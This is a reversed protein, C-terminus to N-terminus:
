GLRIVGIALGVSIVVCVAPVLWFTARAVDRVRGVSVVPLWTGIRDVVGGSRGAPSM